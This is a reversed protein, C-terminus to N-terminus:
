SQECSRSPQGIGRTDTERGKPVPHGRIKGFFRSIAKTRRQEVGPSTMQRFAAPPTGFFFVGAHKRAVWVPPAKKKGGRGQRELGCGWGGQPSRVYHDRWGRVISGGVVRPPRPTDAAPWGLFGTESRFHISPSPPFFYWRPFLPPVPRSTREEGVILFFEGM